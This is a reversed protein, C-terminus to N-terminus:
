ANRRRGYALAHACMVVPFHHLNPKGNRAPPLQYPVADGALGFDDQSRPLLHAVNREVDRTEYRRTRILLKDARRRQRPVPLRRCLGWYLASAQRARAARQDLQRSWLRPAAFLVQPLPIGEIVLMLAYGRCPFHANRVFIEGLIGNYENVHDEASARMFIAGTPRSRTPTNRHGVSAIQSSSGRASGSIHMHEFSEPLDDIDRTTRTLQSPVLGSHITLADAAELLNPIDRELMTALENEITLTAKAPAVTPAVNAPEPQPRPIVQSAVMIPKSDLWSMDDGIDAGQSASLTGRALSEPYMVELQRPTATFIVVLVDLPIAHLFLRSLAECIHIDREEEVCGLGWVSVVGVFAGM